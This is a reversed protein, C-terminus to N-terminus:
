KVTLDLVTISYPPLRQSLAQEAKKGTAQETFGGPAGSYGMVRVTNLSGCGKFELQAQAPQEPDFNLLVATLKKGSADRSAFLSTGEPATTALGNDQFRGGRGDFDRYARFAWFTPSNEAPYQWFFASTLGQQGFRGLAEAQALGGSMHKMAGFNYEGISMGRGPYNESIWQKVRPILQIPESIWSEDKYTPDWLARTSRIRRANTDPDTAGELGLGVNSQPYFHVDVVDLLRVGTKKEYDRLERLYWPLLAVDGHARRDTYPPRGPAFDAASWFYNTWGWEAPGAIVADPDAKRVATGYDITRKLLEDYTLPEPHVDRHTSSWLAPENDLIYMNVGRKAAKLSKVWESIFEPPAQVSTTTAAGPVLPTGDRRVGNGGAPETDDQAQQPGFSSVPFGVSSTDKAVWGILPLTLASQVNNKRNSELFDDAGFGLQVNRFYWDNGTNWARGLKWNYRSTPNGGWRRITAGLKWQHTDSTEKNGDLAIGYILPNIPKSPASCDILMKSERGDGRGMRGGGAARAAAVDPSLPVLAVKDFLVWDRGVEKSARMVLRDFPESRPNLVEMPVVVEAWERDRKVIFEPSIRVHPFTAAGPADLRVDLFEGYSEPATFRFSLAGYAGALKPRYLIWGGYNVMRLRAPAGKPLERPAWGIDKWGAQLGGDYVAVADTNAPQAADKAPAATDKAAASQQQAMAVGAGSGLVACTLIVTRKWRAHKARDAM